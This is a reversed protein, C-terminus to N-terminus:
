SPKRETLTVLSFTENNFECRGNKDNGIEGYSFFGVLPANGAHAAANIEEEVFGGAAQHRAMCSFLLMLDSNSITDSFEMIETISNQVTEEGPNSSFTVISGEPVSGGFILAHNQPDARFPTRIVVSGDNRRVILPFDVSLRPIDEDKLNLFNKYLDLAPKGDITFVTNGNSKTVTREEGVPRWGGTIIGEIDIVNRDIALAAVGDSSFIGNAFVYTEEFSGDDGAMGGYIPPPRSFVSSIGKIIQEGDNTLGSVLIIFAPDDYQEYGWSGINKGLTYTDDGDRKFLKLRFSDPDPNLLCGVASLESIPSDTRGSLIEGCTSCGAIPFPYKMLQEAIEPIGLFVSSFIIGLTPTGIPARDIASTLDEPSEGYLPAVQM